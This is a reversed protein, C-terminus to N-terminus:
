GNQQEVHCCCSLLLNQFLLLPLSVSWLNNILVHRIRCSVKHFQDTMADYNPPVPSLFKPCAFSFCQEFEQLDSFVFFSLICLQRLKQVM